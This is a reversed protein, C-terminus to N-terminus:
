NKFNELRYQVPPYNGLRKQLRYKNYYELYTETYIDSRWARLDRLRLLYDYEEYGECIICIPKGPSPCWFETKKM